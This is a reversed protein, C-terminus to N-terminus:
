FLTILKLLLYFLNFANLVNLRIGGFGPYEFIDM